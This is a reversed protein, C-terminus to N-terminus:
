YWLLTAVISLDNTHILQDIIFVYAYLTSGNKVNDFCEKIKEIITEDM